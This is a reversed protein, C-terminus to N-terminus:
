ATRRRTPTPASAAARWLHTAAYSRWPAWRAARAELGAADGPLGLAEAGRRVALDSALLEDPDGLVRMALYGASWPGLGPLAALEGRLECPDRGADLVLEGSALRECLGVVTSIRRAPGALVERGRAAVTAADPFLLHPDSEAPCLEPPMREGLVATMRAAATRAAAVSVQQGLVTRVATEAADVSGAVRVGPTAAVCPALAPDAGLVADVAEPDTDLDLLRRLVAVAPELDRPDALRLTADVAGGASGAGTLGLHVSAPGHPLRLTRRYGDPAISEVGDVARAAFFELLGHPDFPSRHALRLSVAGTDHDPM